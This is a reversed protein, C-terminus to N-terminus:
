LPGEEHAPLAFEDQTWTFMTDSLSWARVNKGMTNFQSSVGGMDVLRKGIWRRTTTGADAPAFKETNLSKELDQMRFYVLGNEEDHWPKGLLLDERRDTRHRDTVFQALLEEFKGVVTTDKPSDVVRADRIIEATWGQWDGRKYEPIVKHLQLLVQLQFEAPSLYQKGTVQVRGGIKL